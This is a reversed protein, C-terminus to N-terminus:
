KKIMHAILSMMTQNQQAMMCQQQTFMQMLAEHRKQANENRISGAEEQKRRSELEM